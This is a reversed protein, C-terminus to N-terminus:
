FIYRIGLQAQWRSSNIGSDDIDFPDGYDTFSYVPTDGDFGELSILGYSGYSVYYRRGWDSNIMNGLNFVNFTLQLTQRRDAVNVFLDQSFMFDFIHSFPAVAGNREAYEGRRTSLHDDGEIFGDLDSWMVSAKSYNFADADRDYEGLTIESESAPVYMLDSTRNEREGNLYGYVVYSYRRGSQGNYYLSFTSKLAGLWETTYSVLGTVRHGPSFDSYSLDLNNLGNVHENYRWQSSNQSSTADNVVKAVGYNYSANLLLGNSFPRQLQFTLNYTYGQNTNTGLMVRTYDSDIRNNSYIPRDDAGPLNGTPDPDVNINYYQVNNLTKTYLAEVTGILGLPLKQDLALNARFVQPFKFDEAFLDVQGGYPADTGGFDANKYQNQWDPEFVIPDDGDAVDPEYYVGGIALGNNTYSGGPWVLPLRSTFIGLGGRLQTEKEGTVDYNFGIRPSFMLQPKPMQGARAGQVDWGAEEIAPLTNTNFNVDEEPQTLFLPVDIRVGYTLKFNEEVQWEDQAYFGLQAMNFDAAAASGDGTLDDVLSYGREYKYPNAENLFDDVSSFIYEGYNKRMFLNYVSGIEHNMGVTITHAGSYMQFNDTITLVQQKLSNATSYPESGFYISGSGDEVRVAPFDQGSPDRDDNVFITSVILSNSVNNFNSKLELSTTNTTSPFYMYNNSFGLSRSSSASADNLISKTYSHRLMMKHTKNINWDIRAFFKNSELMKSKDLYEGPEYNYDNRLKDAIAEIAAQDSDGNYESFSFPLPTTEDLREFNTFFFLKNKLIPGGISAGYTKSSFPALKTPEVTEDDTPTKGALNENRFLYYATGEVQNTGSKTVANISAGAFGNNRVDYPAISVQFQEIVDMSIPSAGTQGGNTGSAALGFMDNNVAGDISIANYRNNIGAVTLFGEDGVTAQPTLRTFDTLDRAVTPMVSIQESGVVTEAGTRNGDIVEYDRFRRGVVEVEAIEIETVGMTVNLQFTQGLDLWIDNQKYNEYGVFSVTVVYPGGVNMNPIRFFGKEDSIGGFQSGTPTHVAVVTAGPLPQNSDDLIRGNIASTTSGQGFSNVAILMMVAIALVNRILKM